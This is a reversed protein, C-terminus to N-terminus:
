VVEPAGPAPDESASIESAVVQPVESEAPAADPSRDPVAEDTNGTESALSPQAASDVTEAPAPLGEPVVVEIGETLDEVNDDEPATEAIEKREEDPVGEDEVAQAAAEEARRREAAEVAACLQPLGAAEAEAAAFAEAADDAPGSPLTLHQLIRDVAARRVSAGADVKGSSSEVILSGPVLDPDPAVEWARLDSFRQRASELVEEVAERDDPHVRVQLRQREELAQLAQGLLADLVAGREETLIWGVSKEVADRLLACLEARWAEGLTRCQGQVARLVAATTLDLAARHEELEALAQEVGLRFGDERASERLREAEQRVVTAEERVKLAEAHLAECKERVGAAWEETGKRMAQTRSRAQDLMAEVRLAAKARVRDMYEAETRRNWLERQKLDTVKDITSERDRSPGMFITGWRGADVSGNGNRGNDSM